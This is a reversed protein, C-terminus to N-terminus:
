APVKFPIRLTLHIYYHGFLHVCGPSFSVVGALAPSHTDHQITARM